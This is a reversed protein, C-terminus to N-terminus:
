PMSPSPCIPQAAPCPPVQTAPPAEEKLRALVVQQHQQILHQANLLARGEQLVPRPACPRSSSILTFPGPRAAAARRRTLMACLLAGPQRGAGARGGVDGGAGGAACTTNCCRGRHGVGAPTGADPHPAPPCPHSPHRHSPLCVVLHPLCTLGSRCCAMQPQLQSAHHVSCTCLCLCVLWDRILWDHGFRYGVQTAPRQVLYMVASCCVVCCSGWM